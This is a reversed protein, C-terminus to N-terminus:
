EDASVLNSVHAQFSPRFYPKRVRYTVDYLIANRMLRSMDGDVTKLTEEDLLGRQYQFHINEWSKLIMTYAGHLEGLETDYFVKLRLYKLRM